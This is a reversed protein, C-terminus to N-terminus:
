DSQLMQLLIRTHKVLVIYLWIDFSHASMHINLNLNLEVSKLVSYIYAFMGYFITVSYPNLIM